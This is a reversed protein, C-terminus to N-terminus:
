DKAKDECAKIAERMAKQEDKDSEKFKAKWEDEMKECKESFVEDKMQEKTANVCDCTSPGGCSVLFVCLSFVSLIKKM